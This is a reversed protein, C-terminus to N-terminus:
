QDVLRFCGDAVLAVAVDPDPPCIARSVLERHHKRSARSIKCPYKSDPWKPPTAGVSRESVHGPDDILSGFGSHAELKLENPMYVTRAPIDDVATLNDYGLSALDPGDSLLGGDPSRSALTVRAPLLDSLKQLLTRNDPPVTLPSDLLAPNTEVPRPRPLPVAAVLSPAPRGFLWDPASGAQFRADFLLSYAAKSPTSDFSRFM